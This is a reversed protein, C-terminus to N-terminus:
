RTVLLKRTELANGARLEYYYAGAPLGNTRLPVDHRGQTMWESMPAAVERGSLDFLRLSVRSAAPLDFAVTAQDRAPIPYV